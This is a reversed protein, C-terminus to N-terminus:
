SWSETWMLVGYLAPGAQVEGGTQTGSACASCMPYPLVLLWPM